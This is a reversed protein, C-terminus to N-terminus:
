WIPGWIYCNPELSGDGDVICRNERLWADSAFKPIHKIGGYDASLFINGSNGGSSHHHGEWCYIMYKSPDPNHPWGTTMVFNNALAKYGDNYGKQYYADPLVEIQEALYQLDSADLLVDSGTTADTYELVGHSKINDSVEVTGATATAGVLGCLFLM